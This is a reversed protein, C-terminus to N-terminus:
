TKIAEKVHSNLLAHQINRPRPAVSGDRRAKGCRKVVNRDKDKIRAEVRKDRKKM